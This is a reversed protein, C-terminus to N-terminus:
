ENKIRSVESLGMNILILVVIWVIVTLAVPVMYFEIGISSLPSDWTGHLIVPILFLRLFKGDTFLSTDIKGKVKSDNCEYTRYRRYLEKRYAKGIQSVFVIALLEELIDNFGTQPNMKPFIDAKMGM